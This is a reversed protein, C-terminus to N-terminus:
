NAMYKRLVNMLDTEVCFGNGLNEFRAGVRGKFAIEDEDWIPGFGDTWCCWPIGTEQFVSLLDDIEACAIESSASNEGAEASIGFEQAMVQIGTENRFDIISKFHNLIMEKGYHALTDDKQARVTGDAGLVFSPVAQSPVIADGAYFTYHNNATDIQLCDIMYWGDTSRSFVLENADKELTIEWTNGRYFRWEAEGDGDVETCGNEGARETGTAHFHTEGADTELILNGSAHFGAIDMNIVTGAMFDGTLTFKGGSDSIFGNIFYAPYVSIREPFIYPHFTQVVGTDVLERVPQAAAYGPMDVFIVRDPTQKRVADIALRMIRAYSEGDVDGNPGHPENLLNFSLLKPSVDRYYEALFAWFEVFLKQHEGNSFLDDGTQDGVTTFGPMDHLDLCVHIQKEACLRLMKNVASLGDQRAKATDEGDFFMQFDLPVRVFNFGNDAILQIGDESFRIGNGLNERMWWEVTYGRWAPLKSNSVDPMSSIYGEIEEALTAKKSHVVATNTDADYEVAFGLAAGLERLQFFNSGGINYATLDGRAAGDILITQASRRASASNDAGAALETGNPTYAAGTTIRVTASAEDYGVAFQSATGSLVYALDRLKFYNSGGINYKECEIPKGDVMLNQPSLVADAARAPAPLLSLALAVCLLLAPLKRTKNM